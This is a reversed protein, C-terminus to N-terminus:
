GVSPASARAKSMIDLMEQKAKNAVVFSNWRARLDDKFHSAATWGREDKDEPNAGHAVLSAAVNFNAYKAAMRISEGGHRKIEAEIPQGEFAQHIRAIVSIDADEKTCHILGKMVSTYPAAINSISRVVNWGIHRSTAHSYVNACAALAQPHGKSIAESGIGRCMSFLSESSPRPTSLNRKEIIMSETDAWTAFADLLEAGGANALAVWVPVQLDHLPKKQRDVALGSDKMHERIAEGIMLLRKEQDAILERADGGLQDIADCSGCIAGVRLPSLKDKIANNQTNTTSNAVNGNIVTAYVDPDWQRIARLAASNDAAVAHAVLNGDLHNQVSRWEPDKVFQPMPTATKDWGKIPGIRRFIENLMAEDKCAYMAHTLFRSVAGSHGFTASTKSGFSSTLKDPNSWEGEKLGGRFHRELAPLMVDYAARFNLKMVPMFDDAISQHKLSHEGPNHNWSELSAIHIGNLFSAAADSSGECAAAALKRMLHLFAGTDLEQARLLDDSSWRHGHVDGSSASPNNARTM